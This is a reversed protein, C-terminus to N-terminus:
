AVKNDCFFEIAEFMFRALGQKHKEYYASFRPDEFYMVGLGRYMTLNPEYFIRLRDYHVAILEQIEKSGVGKNMKSIIQLLLKENELNIKEWDDKTLKKTRERSQKYLDSEGWREKAERAYKSVNELTTTLGSLRKIFASLGEVNDASESPFTDDCFIEARELGEELKRKGGTTMIVFSSRADRENVERKVLGIKEMPLLLRTIGSATLGIREALDIRRLKGDAQSLELLIIFESLGLGGLASDLRRSMVMQFKAM